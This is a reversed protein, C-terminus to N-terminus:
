ESHCGGHWLQQHRVIRHSHYFIITEEKKELSAECSFAGRLCSPRNEREIHRVVRDAGLFARSFTMSMHFNLLSHFIRSFQGTKVGRLLSRTLDFAQFVKSNTVLLRFTGVSQRYLIPIRLNHTSAVEM